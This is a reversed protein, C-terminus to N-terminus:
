RVIKWEGTAPTWDLKGDANMRGTLNIVDTEAIADSTAPTPYANLETTTTFAAKEEAHNIQTVPHLVIEAIGTGAPAKPGGGESGSVAGFNFPAPPNKFSVRFYKATTAPITSTQQESNALPIYEVRRFNIGDDSVELSRDTTPGTIGFPSKTGGGVVTIAKITQAQPFEFRIWAFGKASDAPLLNNTALDGDTLQALNFSGGSSTVQVNLDALSVDKAPVRYAIVAVDEYYEPPAATKATLGFAEEPIVLNQFAGTTSPPKTLSGSFPQGGKIRTESWVLKKMGNKPQVWPGGSESWGPSGAIAMELKLSDAKRTAFQFADKWEPTMYALRKEVIQPTTLGADFNQFGGIGSRHMWELDKQIGDKTINGNMWHWWVRPKAAEPPTVFNKYLTDAADNNTQSFSSCCAITFFSLLLYRKMYHCTQFNFISYCPQEVTM